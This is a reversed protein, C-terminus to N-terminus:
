RIMYILGRIYNIIFTFYTDSTIHYLTCEKQICLTYLWNTPIYILNNELKIKIGWKKISKFDKNKIDIEHKPNFIYIDCTGNICGILMINNINKDLTTYHNGKIISATYSTNFSINNKFYEFITNCINTLKLDILLKDNKYINCKKKSFDDMRILKDGVIYYNNIINNIQKQIDIDIDIPHELIHPNYLENSIINKLKCNIVNSSINYKFTHSIHIYLITIFLIFIIM